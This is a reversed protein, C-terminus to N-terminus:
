NKEEPFGKERRGVVSGGTWIPTFQVRLSAGIKEMRITTQRGKDVADTSLRNRETVSERLQPERDPLRALPSPRGPSSEVVKVSVKM